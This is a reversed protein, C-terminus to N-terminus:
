SGQSDQTGAKSGKMQHIMGEWEVEQKAFDIKLGLQGMLDRGIIVDYPDQGNSEDIRFHGLATRQTTLEPLQFLVKASRNTVFTGTKTTWVTKSDKNIRANKPLAAKKIISRSCGTDLLAKKRAFTRGQDTGNIGRSLGIEIVCQSERAGSETDKLGSAPRIVYAEDYDEDTGSDTSDKRGSQRSEADSKQTTKEILNAEAHSTSRAKGPGQNKPNSYCEEWSHSSTRHVPCWPGRPRESRRTTGTNGGGRHKGAKPKPQGSAHAKNSRGGSSTNSSRGGGQLQGTTRLRGTSLGRPTEEELNELTKFYAVVDNFDMDEYRGSVVLQHRWSGPVAHELIIQLEAENLIDNDGANLTPM